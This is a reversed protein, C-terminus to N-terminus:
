VLGTADFIWSMDANAFDEMWSPPAHDALAGMDWYDKWIGLMRHPTVHSFTTLGVRHATFGGGRHIASLRHVDRGTGVHANPV